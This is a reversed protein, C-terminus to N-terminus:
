TAQSSNNRKVSLFLLWMAGLAFIFELTGVAIFLLSLGAGVQSALAKPLWFAALSDTFYGASFGGVAVAIPYLGQGLVRRAGFIRGQVSKDVREQWYTQNCANIIPTLFSRISFGIALGLIGLGFGISIRGALAGLATLCFILFTIKKAPFTSQWVGGLVAAAGMFSSVLALSSNDGLFRTLIFASVLGGTIGNLFNQITFFIQMSLLSRNNFIQEFGLVLNKAFSISKSVQISSSKKSPLFVVPFLAFMFSFADACLLTEVGVLSIAAAALPPGVVLPLSEFISAVGNFRGLSSEDVLEVVSAQFTLNKISDFIGMAAMLIYLQAMSGGIRFHFVLLISIVLLSTNSLLLLSRKPFRDVLPGAFLSFYIQAFFKWFVLGAMASASGTKNFVSTAVGFSTLSSGLLSLFEGTWLFIFPFHKNKFVQM